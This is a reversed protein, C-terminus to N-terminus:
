AGDFPLEARPSLRWVRGDRQVTFGDVVQDRMKRLRFGLRSSPDKATEVYFAGCLVAVVVLDAPRVWQGGYRKWWAQVFEVQEDTEEDGTGALTSLQQTFGAVEARELIGGIVRSWTEYSGIPVGSWPPAGAAVWGQVLTLAAWVLEERHAAAWARLNPHRFGTRKEPHAVVDNPETTVALDLRCWGAARRLIDRSFQANNSTMVWGCRIRTNFTASKGLIRGSWASQTLAQALADSDVRHSVNDFFVFQQGEMLMSTLQKRTEAEDDALQSSPTEGAAVGMCVEALKSKGTGPTPADIVYLPTPGDILARAFPQLILALAAALDGSTAFPFDGLLEVTLWKVADRIEEDSPVSSVEPVVLGPTEQYWLRSEAHYGTRRVIVASPSFFPVRAVGELSPVATLLDAAAEVSKVATEPPNVPVKAGKATTKEWVSRAAIWESFSFFTHRAVIAAGQEDAGVRCLGGAARFLTPPENHSTILDRIKTTMEYLDGSVPITVRDFKSQPETDDVTPSTQTVAWTREARGVGGGLKQRAGRLHRRFDEATWPEGVRSLPTKAVVALWQLEVQADSAGGLCLKWVLDRLAEDQNAGVPIGNLLLSDVDPDTYGASGGGGAPKAAGLPAVSHWAEPLEALEEVRPPRGSPAGSPDYWTYVRGRVPDDARNGPHVSPWCVTYRHHHQIVEVGPGLVGPLRVLLHPPTRYLLQRSRGDRASTTWTAPLPGHAQILQVLTGWGGKGDYDDVDIGVVGLPLRVAVNDGGRATAWAMAVLATVTKGTEGTFGVPLNGAKGVVPLPNWGGELYDRWARAYPGEKRGKRIEEENPTESPEGLNGPDEDRDGPGGDGSGPRAPPLVAM